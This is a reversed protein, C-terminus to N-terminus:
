IYDPLIDFADLVYVYVPQEEKSDVQISLLRYGFESEFIKLNYEMDNTALNVIKMIKGHFDDIKVIEYGGSPKVCFFKM